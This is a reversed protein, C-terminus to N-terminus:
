KSLRLWAHWVHWLGSTVVLMPAVAQSGHGGRKAQALAASQTAQGLFLTVLGL